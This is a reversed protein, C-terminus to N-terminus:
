VMPLGARGGSGAAPGSASAGPYPAYATDMSAAGLKGRFGGHRRTGSPAPSWGFLSLGGGPAPVTATPDLMRQVRTVKWVGIIVFAVTKFLAMLMLTSASSRLASLLLGLRHRLYYAEGSVQAIRDALHDLAAEVDKVHGVKITENADRTHASVAEDIVGGYWEFLIRRPPGFGGAFCIRYIPFGEEDVHIEFSDSASAPHALVPMVRQEDDPADRPLKSIVTEVAAGAPPDVVLYHGSILDGNQGTIFFCNPNFHHNRAERTGVRPMPVYEFTLAAAPKVALQAGLLLALFLTLLLVCAWLWPNGTPSRM